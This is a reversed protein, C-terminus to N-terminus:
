QRIFYFTVPKNHSESEIILETSSLKIIKSTKIKKEPGFEIKLKDGDISWYGSHTLNDKRFFAYSQDDKFIFRTTGPFLQKKLYDALAIQEHKINIAMDSSIPVGEASRPIVEVSDNASIASLVWQGVVPSKSNASPNYLPAKEREYNFSLLTVLLIIFLLNKLM